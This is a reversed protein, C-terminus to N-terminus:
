SSKDPLLLPSTTMLCRWPVATDLWKPVRASVQLGDVFRGAWGPNCALKAHADTDLNCNPTEPQRDGRVTSLYHILEDPRCLYPALTHPASCV